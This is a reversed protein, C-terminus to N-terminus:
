HHSGGHHHHGEEEHSCGGQLDQLEEPNVTEERGGEYQALLQEYEANSLESSLMLFAGEYKDFRVIKILHM